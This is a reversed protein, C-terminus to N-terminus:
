PRLVLLVADRLRGPSVPKSVRPARGLDPYLDLADAFASCFIFPIGQHELAVALPFALQGNLNVDVIACDYGGSALAERGQGFSFAIKEVTGGLDVLMDGMQWAQMMEDEIILFKYGALPHEESAYM